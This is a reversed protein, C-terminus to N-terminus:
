VIGLNQLHVHQLLSVSKLNSCNVDCQRSHTTPVIPWAARIAGSGGPGAWGSVCSNTSFSCIQFYLRSPTSYALLRKHVLDATATGRASPGGMTINSFFPCELCWCQKVIGEDSSMSPFAAKWKQLVSANQRCETIKLHVSRSWQWTRDRLHRSRDDWTDQNVPVAKVAKLHRSTWCMTVFHKANNIFFCIQTHQAHLIHSISACLAQLVNRYPFLM